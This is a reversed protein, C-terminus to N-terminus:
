TTLHLEAKFSPVEEIPSLLGVLRPQLHLCKVNEAAFTSDSVPFHSVFIQKGPHSLFATEWQLM